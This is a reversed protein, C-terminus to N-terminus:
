SWFTRKKSAEQFLKEIKVETTKIMEISSQKDAENKKEIAQKDAEIKKEIAIILKETYTIQKEISAVQAKTLEKISAVQAETSKQISDLQAETSKKISAVQAETSEQISAVQTKTSEKISDVKANVSDDAVKFFLAASAIPIAAPAIAKVIELKFDESYCIIFSSIENNILMKTRLSIIKNRFITYSDCFDLSLVILTMFLVVYM